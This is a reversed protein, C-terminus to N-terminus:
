LQDKVISLALVISSAAMVWSAMVRVGVRAWAWRLRSVSAAVTCSVALAGMFSGLAFAWPFSTASAASPPPMVGLGAGVGLAALMAAASATGWQRGLAVIVGGFAAALLSPWPVSPLALLDLLSLVLGAALACAFAIASAPSWRTQIEWQQGLLFAGALLPLLM